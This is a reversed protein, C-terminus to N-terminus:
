FSAFVISDSLACVVHSNENIWEEIADQVAQEDQLEKPKIETDYQELVECYTMEKYDCCISIVDMEIKTGLEDELNELYQFLANLGEYSFNETRGMRKFADHFSSRTITEYMKIGKEEHTIAM